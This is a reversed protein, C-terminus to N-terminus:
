LKITFILFELNEGFANLKSIGGYRINMMINFCVQKNNDAVMNILLM